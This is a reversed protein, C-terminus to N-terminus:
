DGEDAGFPLPPLLRLYRFIAALDDDTQRALVRWPMENSLFAGDPRQGTRMAHIFEEESWNQLQGAPTLNAASLGGPELPPAGSLASGHCERCNGIAVLYGGYEATRGAAPTSAKIPVVDIGEAPLTYEGALLLIRGLPRLSSDGPQNDVPPVSKIYAIIAALDEESLQSFGQSPMFLMPKGDPRVAYRIARVWDADSYQSGIGGEGGTLNSANLLFPPVDAFPQGGLNGGHCDICGTNAEVLYRGRALTKADAPIPPVSLDISYRQNLRVSSAGYIGAIALGILAALVALITLAIRWIRKMLTKGMAAHSEESDALQITKNAM